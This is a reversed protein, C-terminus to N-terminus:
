SAASIYPTPSTSSRYYDTIITKNFGFALHSDWSFRGVLNRTNLSLDVGQGRTRATNRMATSGFGYTPDIRAGALLDQTRKLYYEASGSIRNNKNRFDVGFNITRVKEWRLTPNPGSDAWAYPLGTDSHNSVHTLIAQAAVSPDINGSYGYTARLKLYPLN